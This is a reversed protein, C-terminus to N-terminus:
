NLIWLNEGYLMTHYVSINILIWKSEQIKCNQQPSDRSQSFPNKSERRIESGTILSCTQTCNMQVCVCVRVCLLFFFSFSFVNINMHIQKVFKSYGFEHSHVTRLAHLPDSMCVSWSLTWSVARSVPVFHLHSAYATSSKLCACKCLHM